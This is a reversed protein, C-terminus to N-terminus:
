GMWTLAFENPTTLLSCVRLLPCGNQQPLNIGPNNLKNATCKTVYCSKSM